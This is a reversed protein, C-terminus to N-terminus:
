PASVRIVFADLNGVSAQGPLIDDTLGALYVIGKGDVAIGYASGRLGSGFQGTRLEEGAPDYKRLIVVWSGAGAQGPLAERARGAVYLNGEGDVAAGLAESYEGIDLQRIWLDEGNSGYKRLLFDFGGTDTQDSLPGSTLGVVYVGGERAISVSRPVEAGSSGFQRTWLEKGMPDYKRLYADTDGGVYTQGPLASTTFGAVYANGVPDVAVSWAKDNTTSGFQRTWLENGMPDYKRLYSDQAGLKAQGPLVGETWGSVYINGQRDLAVSRAESEETSGFRQTWLEDGAPDYKRLYSDKISEEAPGALGGSVSGVLYVNGEGDVAASFAESYRAPDFQQTWLEEGAPDYKRLFAGWGGAQAQGPLGGRTSGAVYVNGARDVAVGWAADASPSGFQRIWDAGFDNQGGKVVLVAVTVIIAIIVLSIGVQFRRVWLRAVM